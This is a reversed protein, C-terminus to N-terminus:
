TPQRIANIRTTREEGFLDLVLAPVPMEETQKQFAMKQEAEATPDAPAPQVIPQPVPQVIPQPIPAPLVATGMHTMLEPLSEVFLRASEALSRLPEEAAPVPYQENLFDQLEEDSMQNGWLCCLACKLNQALDVLQAYTLGDTEQVLLDFNFTPEPFLGTFYAKRRNQSPLVMRCLRLYRRLNSPIDEVISDILIFFLPKPHREELFWEFVLAQGLWTFLERRFGCDELGELILFWPQGDKPQDIVYRLRHTAAAYGDACLTQGDIVLANTPHTETLINYMHAAATHKGCGDPGTLILGQPPPALTGNNWMKCLREGWGFTDDLEQSTLHYFPTTGQEANELWSKLEHDTM